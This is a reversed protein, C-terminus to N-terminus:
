FGGVAEIVWDYVGAGNALCVQVSQATGADQVLIRKGAWTASAVPRLASTYSPLAAQDAVSQAFGQCVIYLEVGSPPATVFTITGGVPDVVYQQTTNLGSQVYAPQRVGGLYVDYMEPNGIPAGTIYYTAGGDTVRYWWNPLVAGGGAVVASVYAEVFARTAADQGAQPAGLNLIRNQRADFAGSGDTDGARLLLARALRNSWGQVMMVIRDFVTEHVEPFFAGQNRLDTDQIPSVDREIVLQYGAALAGALLTLTGGSVSGQGALTYDTGLVLTLSAGTATTIKTAVIDADRQFPFSFPFSTATGNGTFEARSTTIPVTM